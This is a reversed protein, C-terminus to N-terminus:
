LPTHELPKSEACLTLSIVASTGLGRCIGRRHWGVGTITWGLTGYITDGQRWGVTLAVRDALRGVLLLPM